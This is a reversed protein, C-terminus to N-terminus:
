LVHIEKTKLMGSLSINGKEEDNGIVPLVMTKLMRFVRAIGKDEVNGFCLYRGKDEYNGILPLAM